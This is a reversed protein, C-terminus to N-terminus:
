SVTDPPIPAPPRERYEAGRYPAAEDPAALKTEVLDDPGYGFLELEALTDGHKGVFVPTGPPRQLSRSKTGNFLKM